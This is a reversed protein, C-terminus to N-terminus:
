FYVSGNAHKFIERLRYKPITQIPSFTAGTSDDKPGSKAGESVSDDLKGSENPTDATKVMEVPNDITIVSDNACNAQPVSDQAVEGGDQRKASDGM